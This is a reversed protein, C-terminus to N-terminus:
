NTLNEHLAKEAAERFTLLTKPLIRTIPKTDGTSDSKMSDVLGKIAGRPMKMLRDILRSFTSLIFLPIYTKKPPEKGLVDAVTDIMQPMQVLEDRGVNYCHGFAETKDLVGVLYYALDSVAIPQFKQTGDGLLMARKGKANKVVTNFGQGGIGVIMGPRLITVDLGSGLLYQEMNWRGRVWASKAQSTIGLFTLYVLRSVGQTKCAAVINELGAMEADVFDKKDTNSPQASLTHVSVYVADMSHLANEMSQKNLIDGKVVECGERALDEIKSPTRALCRVKYGGALLERTLHKGVFGSAGIVLIKKM